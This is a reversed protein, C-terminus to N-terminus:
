EEAKKLERVYAQLRAIEAKAEDITLPPKENCRCRDVCVCGPPIPVYESWARRELHYPKLQEIVRSVPHMYRKAEAM